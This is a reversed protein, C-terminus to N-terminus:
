FNKFTKQWSEKLKYINEKIVPKGKAFIIFEESDRVKGIEKFCNDRMIEEFKEKNKPSITVLFRSASESYLIKDVNKFSKTPVKELDIEIGLEGAFSIQALAVALGGKYIGHCSNVLGKETAQSLANYLKM